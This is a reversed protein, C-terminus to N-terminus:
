GTRYRRDANSLVWPYYLQYGLFRDLCGNGVARLKAETEGRQGNKPPGKSTIVQAKSLYNSVVNGPPALREPDSLRRLGIGVSRKDMTAGSDTIFGRVGLCM